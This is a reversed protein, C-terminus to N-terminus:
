NYTILKRGGLHSFFPPVKQYKNIIKKYLAENAVATSIIITILVNFVILFDYDCSRTQTRWM